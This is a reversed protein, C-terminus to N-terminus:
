HAQVGDFAAILAEDFAQHLRILRVDYQVRRDRLDSFRGIPTIADSEPAVALDLVRLEVEDHHRQRIIPELADVELAAPQALRHLRMDRMVVLGRMVKADAGEEALREPTLLECAGVIHLIDKAAGAQVVLAYPM